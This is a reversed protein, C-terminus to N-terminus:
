NCDLTGTLRLFTRFEQVSNLYPEISGHGLDWQTRQTDKMLYCM